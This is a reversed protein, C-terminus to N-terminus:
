RKTMPGPHRLGAAQHHLVHVDLAADEVDGAELPAEGGRVRQPPVLDRAMLAQIISRERM